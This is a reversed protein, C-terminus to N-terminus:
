GKKGAGITAEGNALGGDGWSRGRKFAVNAVIATPNLGADEGRKFLAIFEDAWAAETMRPAPAKPAAEAQHKRHSRKAKPAEAPAQVGEQSVM